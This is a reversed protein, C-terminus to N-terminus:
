TKNKARGESTEQQYSRLLVEMDFRRQKRNKIADKKEFEKLETIARKQSNMGKHRLSHSITNKLQTKFLGVDFYSPKKKRKRINNQQSFNLPDAKAQITSAEHVERLQFNPHMQLPLLKEEQFPESFEPCINESENPYEDNKM